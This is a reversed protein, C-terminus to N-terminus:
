HHRKHPHHLEDTFHHRDEKHEDLWEKYEQNKDMWSTGIIYVVMAVIFYIFEIM